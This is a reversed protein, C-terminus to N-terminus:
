SFWRVVQTVLVLASLAVTIGILSYVVITKGHKMREEDGGSLLYMLGGIVLMIIGIIGIVSLLFNLVNQLIEILTKSQAVANGNAGNWGLIQGIEKLFSPAALALALGVLSATMIMKGTSLKSAEGGATMYVLSGIVIM